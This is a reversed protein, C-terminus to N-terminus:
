TKQWDAFMLRAELGSYTREQVMEIVDVNALVMENIDKYPLNDPWIVVKYGRVIATNIKKTIEKSRPENDWVFVTRERDFEGFPVDSGGMAMSNELFMSDIPGETVYHLKTRDCTDQGYLKLQENDLMIMIYRKDTEKKFSRGTYGFVEGDATFFPIVLRPEEYELKMKDPIMFNTWECFKPSFYMRSHYFNPINRGVVYMKAPHDPRLQSIKKLKGMAAPPPKFVPTTFTVNSTPDQRKPGNEFLEMTYEKYSLSDIDKLFDGFSKPVGCIHCAYKLKDKRTYLYGRAKNKNNESDGCYPCRFNLLLPNQNKVVFKQLRSRLNLAYKSEIWLM